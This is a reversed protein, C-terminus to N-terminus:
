SPINTMTPRGVDKGQFRKNRQSYAVTYTAFQFMRVAFISSELVLGMFLGGSDIQRAIKALGYSLLGFFVNLLFLKPRMGKVIKKAKGLAQIGCTEELITIVMSLHWVVGVYWQFVLYCKFVVFLKWRAGPTVVLSSHFNPSFWLFPLVIIVSFLLSNALTIYFSTVLTRKLSKLTLVSPHKIKINDDKHALAAAHVTVIVSVLDIIFPVSWVTMSICASVVLDRLIFEPSSPDATPFLSSENILKRTEPKDIFVNFLYVLGNLLLPLRLVSFMLKKNKLSLKRSENLMGAVDKLVDSFSFLGM